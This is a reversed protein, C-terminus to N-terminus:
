FILTHSEKEEKGKKQRKQDYNEYILFNPRSLQVFM